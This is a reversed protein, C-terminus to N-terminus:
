FKGCKWGKADTKKDVHSDFVQVTRWDDNMHCDDRMRTKGTIIHEM